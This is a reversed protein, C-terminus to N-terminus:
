PKHQKAEKAQEIEELNAAAMKTLPNDPGYHDTLIKLARKSYTLAGNLDGKEKLIQGINNLRIRLNPHNPGYVKEDIKFARDIHLCRIAATSRFAGLM